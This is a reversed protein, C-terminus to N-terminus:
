DVLRAEYQFTGVPASHLKPLKLNEPTRLSAWRPPLIQAATGLSARRVIAEPPVTATLANLETGFRVMPAIPGATRWVVHTM